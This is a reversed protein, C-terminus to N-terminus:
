VCFVYVVRLCLTLAGDNFGLEAGCATVSFWWLRYFVFNGALVFCCCCVFDLLVLCVCLCSCCMLGM